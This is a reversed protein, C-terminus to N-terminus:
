LRGGEGAYWSTLEDICCAAEDCWYRSCVSLHSRPHSSAGGGYMSRQLPSLFGLYESRSGVVGESVVRGRISPASQSRHLARFALAHYMRCFSRDSRYLLQSYTNIEGGVNSFRSEPPHVVLLM